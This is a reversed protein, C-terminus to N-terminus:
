LQEVSKELEPRFSERHQILPRFKSRGRVQVRTMNPRAVEGTIKVQTFDLVTKKKFEPAGSLALWSAVVIELM